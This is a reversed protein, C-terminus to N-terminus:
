LKKRRKRRSALLALLGGGALSLTTPEPLNLGVTVRAGGVDGDWDAIQLGIKSIEHLDRDNIAHIGDPWGLDGGTHPSSNDTINGSNASAFYLHLAKTEGLALSTWSLCEWYTDNQWTNSPFGSPGTLGTNMFLQVDIDSGPPGVLYSVMMNYSDYGALSSNAHPLCGGPVGPDPALKAAANIPWDDAIALKGGGPVTALFVVGPGPVDVRGDLTAGPSSWSLVGFDPHMLEGDPVYYPTAFALTAAGLIVVALCKARAM